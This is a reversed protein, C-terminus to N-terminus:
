NDNNNKLRMVFYNKSSQEVLFLNSSQHDKRAFTDIEFWGVNSVENKIDWISKFKTLKVRNDPKGKTKYKKGCHTLNEKKLGFEGLRIWKYLTKVCAPFKVGFEM